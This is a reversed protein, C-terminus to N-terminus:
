LAWRRVLAIISVAVVAIAAGTSQALYDLNAQIKEVPGQSTAAGGKTPDLPDTDEKDNTGDGDTDSKRPDTGALYECRNDCGDADPDGTAGQGLNGFNDDEWYDPLCDKDSDTKNTEGSKFTCGTPAGTSTATDSKTPDTGRLYECRNNCNDGDPDMTANQATITTFFQKEWYDPLCDADNDTKNTEGTKYICGPAGNPFGGGTTAPPTSRVTYVVNAAAGNDPGVDNAEAMPAGLPIFSLLAYTSDVYLGTLLTGAKAAPIASKPMTINFQNDTATAATANGTPGIGGMPGLTVEAGPQYEVGAVTFHVTYTYEVAANTVDEVTGDGATQVHFFFHTANEEVWVLDIDVRALAVGSVTGPIPTPAVLLEFDGTADDVEPAGQTGALAPVALAALLASLALFAVPVLATRRM